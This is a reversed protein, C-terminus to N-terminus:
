IPGALLGPIRFKSIPAHEARIKRAPFRVNKGLAGRAFNWCSRIKTKLDMVRFGGLFRFDVNRTDPNNEGLLRGFLDCLAHIQRVKEKQDWGAIGVHFDGLAMRELLVHVHGTQRRMHMQTSFVGPKIDGIRVAALFRQQENRM